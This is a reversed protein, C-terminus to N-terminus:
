VVVVVVFQNSNFIPHTKNKLLYRNSHNAIRSSLFRVQQTDFYEHEGLNGWHNCLVGNVVKTGLFTANQLWNPRLLGVNL